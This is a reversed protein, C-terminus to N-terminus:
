TKMIRITTMVKKKLKSREQYRREVSGSSLSERILNLLLARPSGLIRDYEIKATKNDTHKLISSINDSWGVNSCPGREVLVAGYKSIWSM